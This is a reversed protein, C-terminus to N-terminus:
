LGVCSMGPLALHRRLAAHGATCCGRAPPRPLPVCEDGIEFDGTLLTDRTTYILTAFSFPLLCEKSDDRACISSYAPHDIIKQEM